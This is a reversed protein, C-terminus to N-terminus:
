GRGGRVNAVYEALSRCLSRALAKKDDQNSALPIEACLERQFMAEWDSSARVSDAEDNM